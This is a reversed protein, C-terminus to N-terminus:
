AKSKEVAKMFFPKNLYYMRAKAKAVGVSVTLIMSNPPFGIATKNLHEAEVDVSEPQYGLEIISLSGDGRGLKIHTGRPNNPDSPVGDAIAAQVYFVKNPSHVKIRTALAGIPFIPPGNAGALALENAMGYPPQLFLGSTETVYFESDIPYLGFLVSLKDNFFSKQIWAHYFQATNTGVEINDVGVVAGVYKTNFKSGLDSHYIVSFSTANWGLLKELDFNASIETHGLWAAGRKLGGSVNALVDSKHTIGIDVGSKYLNARTGAWDGTLTDNKWDPLQDAEEASL